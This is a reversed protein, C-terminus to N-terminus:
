QIRGFGTPRSVRPPQLVSGQLSVPDPDPRAWLWHWNRTLRWILVAILISTLWFLPTLILGTWEPWHEIWRLTIGLQVELMLWHTVYVPLTRKGISLFPRAARDSRAILASLIFLSPVAVFFRLGPIPPDVLVLAMWLSFFALFHLWNAKPVWSRIFANARAGIMFAFLYHTFGITGVTSIVSPWRLWGWQTGIYGIFAIGVPIWAPWKRTLWWLWSFLPLAILYWLPTDIRLIHQIPGSRTLTLVRDDLHRVVLGDVVFYITAWVFYLYVFGQIKGKVFSRWGRTKWRYLFFGSIMFFAPMRMSAFTAGIWHWVGHVPLGLMNILHRSHDLVVLAIAIGKAVDIWVERPRRVGSKKTSM